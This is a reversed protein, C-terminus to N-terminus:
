EDESADSLEARRQGASGDEDDCCDIAVGGDDDAKAANGPPLRVPSLLRSLVGLLLEPDSV